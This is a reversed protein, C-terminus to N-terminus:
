YGQEPSYSEERHLIVNTFNPQARRTDYIVQGVCGKSELSTPCLVESLLTNIRNGFTHEIAPNPFAM